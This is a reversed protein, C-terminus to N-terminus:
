QEKALMFNSEELNPIEKYLEKKHDPWPYAVTFREDIMRDRNKNFHCNETQTCLRFCLDDVTRGKQFVIVQFKQCEYPENAHPVSHDNLVTV